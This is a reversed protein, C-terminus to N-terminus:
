CIAEFDELSGPLQTLIRSYNMCTYSQYLLLIYLYFYDSVFNGPFLEFFFKDNTEKSTAVYSLGSKTICFTINEFPILM